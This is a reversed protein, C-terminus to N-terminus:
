VYNMLIVRIQNLVINYKVKFYVTVLYNLAQTSNSFYFGLLNIEINHIPFVMLTM